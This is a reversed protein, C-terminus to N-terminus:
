RAPKAPHAEPFTGRIRKPAKVDGTAPAITVDRESDISWFVQRRLRGPLPM